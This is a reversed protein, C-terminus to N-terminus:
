GLVMPKAAMWAGMELRGQITDADADLMGGTSRYPLYLRVKAGGRAYGKLREVDGLFAARMASEAAWVCAELLGDCKARPHPEAELPVCGIADIEVGHLDDVDPLMPIVHRHGGDSLLVPAGQYTAAVPEMVGAIASSGEIGDHLGLGGAAAPHVGPGWTPQIYRGTERVVTGVAFRTQLRSVAVDREARERMPRLSLLGKWRQVAPSLFGRIGDIPHPDDIALWYDYLADIARQAVMAGNISGVSVGIVFDPLGDRALLARLVPVQVAGKFGGGSLLWVRM